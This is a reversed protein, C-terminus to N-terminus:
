DEDQSFATEGSVPPPSPSPASASAGQVLESPVVDTDPASPAGPESGADPADPAPADDQARVPAALALACLTVM